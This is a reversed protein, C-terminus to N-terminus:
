IAFHHLYHLHGLRTVLWDGENRPPSGSDSVQSWQTLALQRPLPLLRFLFAAVLVCVTLLTAAVVIVITRRSAM